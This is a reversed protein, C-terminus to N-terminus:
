CTPSHYDCRGMYAEYLRRGLEAIWSAAYHVDLLNVHLADDTNVVTAYGQDNLLNQAAQVGTPKKGPMVATRFMVIPATDAGIGLGDLHGTLPQEPVSQNVNVVYLGDATHGASDLGTIVAGPAVHNGALQDGVSFQGGTVCSRISRNTASLPLAVMFMGNIVAKSCSAGGSGAITEVTNGTTEYTQLSYDGVGGPDGDLQGTIVTDPLVGGGSVQMLPAVTGSLMSTVTLTTGNILGTFSTDVATPVHFRAFLDAASAFYPIPTTGVFPFIPFQCGPLVNDEEGQGWEIVRVQYPAGIAAEANAVTQVLTRFADQAAATHTWYPSYSNGTPVQCLSAGAATLKIMYLTDGPHEREYLACFEGEPGYANLLPGAGTTASNVFPRYPQWNSGRPSPTWIMCGPVPTGSGGIDPAAFTLHTVPLETPSTVTYPPSTFTQYAPVGDGTVEMGAALPGTLNSCVIAGSGPTAGVPTDTTESCDGQVSDNPNGPIVPVAHLPPKTGAATDNSQGAFIAVSVQACASAACLCAAAVVLSILRKRVTTV